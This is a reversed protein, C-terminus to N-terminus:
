DRLETQKLYRAAARQDIDLRLLQATAAEIDLAGSKYEQWIRKREADRAADSSATDSMSIGFSSHSRREDQIEHNQPDEFVEVEEGAGEQAGEFSKSNVIDRQGQNADEKGWANREVRKM